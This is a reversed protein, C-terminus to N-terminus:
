ISRKHPLRRKKWISAKREANKRRKIANKILYEFIVKAKEKKEELGIEIRRQKEVLVFDEVM